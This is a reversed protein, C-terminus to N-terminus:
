DGPTGLLQALVADAVSDHVIDCADIGTRAPRHLVVPVFLGDRKDTGNGLRGREKYALTHLRQKLVITQGEWSAAFEEKPNNAASLTAITSAMVLVPVIQRRAFM